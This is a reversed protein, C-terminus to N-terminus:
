RSPWAWVRRSVRTPRTRRVLDSPELTSSGTFDPDLPRLDSRLAPTDVNLHDYRLGGNIVVGEREFKDQVYLSWVKPHKAGDRGENGNETLRVQDVIRAIRYTTDADTIDRILVDKYTVEQDYGYGDYDVLNPTDGGLQVPFYHNYLRLTHCQFDGGAKVQHYPNVQSTM